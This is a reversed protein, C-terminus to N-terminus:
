PTDISSCKSPVKGLLSYTISFQIAKSDYYYYNLRRFGETTKIIIPPKKNTQVIKVILITASHEYDAL